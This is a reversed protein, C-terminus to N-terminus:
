KNSMEKLTKLIQNVKKINERAKEALATRKGLKIVREWAKKAEEYKEHAYYRMGLDYHAQQSTSEGPPPLTATKPPHQPPSSPPPPPPKPAPKQEPTAASVSTPAPSKRPADKIEKPPPAKPQNAEETITLSKAPPEKADKQLQQDVTACSFLFALSAVFFIRTNIKKM